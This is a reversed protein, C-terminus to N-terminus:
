LCTFNPKVYNLEEFITELDAMIQDRIEDSVIKLCDLERLGTTREDMRGDTRGAFDGKPGFPM